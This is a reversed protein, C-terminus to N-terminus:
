LFVELLLSNLIFITGVVCGHNASFLVSMLIFNWLTRRAALPDGTRISGEEGMSMQQFSTIPSRSISVETPPFDEPFLQRSVTEIIGEKPDGM